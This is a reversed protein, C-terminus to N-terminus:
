VTFGVTHNPGFEKILGAKPLFVTDDISFDFDTIVVDNRSFFSSGEQKTYDLRGGGVIKWSPYFEYTAEGFVAGNWTKQDTRSVDSAFGFFDPRLFGADEKEYAGYLGLTTDLRDGFYNLRFEQTALKQIFDGTVIDTEGSTGANISPRDTDSHSFGTQSTFVLGTTIDHTMELGVNHVETKRVETFNPTNFDGRHDEFDFGLAPGGVDRIDPSDESYSYSLLGRTDPLGEPAVVVKGRVNFFENTIFDDFRDFREYTPYNIDNESTQYEGAVRVAVQDKIIPLNFMGAGEVTESTGYTFQGAAEYDFTPDKTKVYIAGALAARGALTSQPGRYVEVQEVDWLGRAGRRAGQVTQQVGDVYISALPSGGPTLGESNIGRIVFGSDNFDTDRVNALLRFSERLNRLEREDVEKDTVIGISATVDDLTQTTRAGYVTLPDLQLPGSEGAVAREVMVASASTYRYRLGTGALIQRLAQEPTYDGQAGETRVGAVLNSDVAIQLGAQRGFETLASSLPQPPINFARPTTAQPQSAAQALTPLATADKVSDEKAEVARAHRQWDGPGASGILFLCALAATGLM